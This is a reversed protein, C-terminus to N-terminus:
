KPSITPLRDRFILIFINFELINYCGKKEIGPFLIKLKEM